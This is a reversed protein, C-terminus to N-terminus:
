PRKRPVCEAGGVGFPLGAAALVPGTSRTGVRQSVNALTVLAAASWIVQPFAPLLPPGEGLFRAGTWPLCPQRQAALTPGCQGGAWAPLCSVLSALTGGAAVLGAVDSTTGDDTSALRDLTFAM